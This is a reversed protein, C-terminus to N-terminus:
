EQKQITLEQEANEAVVCSIHADSNLAYSCLVPGWVPGSPKPSRIKLLAQTRMKYHGDGIKTCVMVNFSHSQEPSLTCMENEVGGTSPINKKPQAMHPFLLWTFFQYALNTVTVAQQAPQPKQEQIFNWDVDQWVCICQRSKNTITVQQVREVLDPQGNDMGCIHPAQLNIVLLAFFYNRHNEM